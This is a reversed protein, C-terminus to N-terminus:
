KVAIAKLILAALCFAIGIFSYVIGLMAPAQVMPSASTKVAGIFCLLGLAIFIGGLNFLERLYQQSELWIGAKM